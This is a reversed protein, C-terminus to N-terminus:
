TAAIAHIEALQCYMRDVGDAIPPPSAKMPSAAAAETHGEERSANPTVGKAWAQTSTSDMM